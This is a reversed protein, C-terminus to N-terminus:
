RRGTVHLRHSASALNEDLDAIQADLQQMDRCLMDMSAYQQHQSDHCQRSRQPSLGANHALSCRQSLSADTSYHGRQWSPQQRLASKSPSSPPHWAPVLADLDVARSHADTHKHTVQMNLLNNLYVLLTWFGKAHMSCCFAAQQGSAWMQVTPQLM